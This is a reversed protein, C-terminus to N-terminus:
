YQLKQYIVQQCTFLERKNYFLCSNFLIFVQLNRTIDQYSSLGILVGRDWAVTPIGSNTWCVSRALMQIWVDSCRGMELLEVVDSQRVSVVFEVM